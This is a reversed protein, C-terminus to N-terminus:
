PQLSEYLSAKARRILTKVTNIPLDMTEAIERYTFGRQYFLLLVIRYGPKLAALARDLDHAEEVEIYSAPAELTEVTREFEDSFFITEKKKKRLWDYATRTAITYLWTSFQYKPNYSALHRWVKLFTEQTLDEADERRSTIRKLYSFVGREYRSLLADFAALDGAAAAPILPDSQM